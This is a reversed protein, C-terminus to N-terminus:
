KVLRYEFLREDFVVTGDDVMKGLTVFVLKEPFGTARAIDHINLPPSSALLTVVKETILATPIGAEPTIAVDALIGRAAEGVRERQKILGKLEHIEKMIDTTSKDVPYGLAKELGAQRFFASVTLGHSRAIKDFFAAEQEHVYVYLRKM